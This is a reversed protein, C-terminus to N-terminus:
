PMQVPIIAVGIPDAAGSITITNEATGGAPYAYENAVFTTADSTYFNRNHVKFAFQL